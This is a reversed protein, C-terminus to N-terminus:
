DCKSYGCHKCTNCGGEFVLEEGCEPCANKVKPPVISVHPKEDGDIDDNIEYQVEKWMEMLANGVAIPCCSGKSTDRKTATRVAYSQEIGISYTTVKKTPAVLHLGQSLVENSVGDQINYVIGVYGAPIKTLCM